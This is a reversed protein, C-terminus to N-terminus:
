NACANVSSPWGTKSRLPRPRSGRPLDGRYLDVAERLAAPSGVAVLREFIQVDVQVEDPVLSVADGHLRLLQAELSGLATRLVYLAQRLRNRAQPAPIEGWLLTTLTERPRPIGPAMALYALLAHANRSRLRLPSGDSLQADIGGFLTILLKPM